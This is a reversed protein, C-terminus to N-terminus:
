SLVIHWILAVHVDIALADSSLALVKRRAGWPGHSGPHVPSSCSPFEGFTAHPFPRLPCWTGQTCLRVCSFQVAAQALAPRTHSSLSSDQGAEGSSVLLIARSNPCHQLLKAGASCVKSGLMLPVIQVCPGNLTEDTQSVSLSAQRRALRRDHSATGGRPVVRKQEQASSTVETLHSVQESVHVSSPVHQAM